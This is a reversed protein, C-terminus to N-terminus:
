MIRPPAQLSCCGGPAIANVNINYRGFELALSQTLMLMGGKSADYHALNGTPHLSDISAIMIIKGGRGSEIM